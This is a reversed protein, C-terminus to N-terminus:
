KFNCMPYIPVKLELITVLIDNNVVKNMSPINDFFM